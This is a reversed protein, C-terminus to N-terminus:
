FFIRLALEVIRADRASTIIGFNRNGITTNPNNWQPHNVANYFEGRFQMSFREYMKFNRMLSLDWNNIGPGHLPFRPSTGLQYQPTITWADTNFYRYITKDSHPLAPSVGPKLTPRQANSGGGNYSQTVQMPLGIQFETIGAFQWGTIIDKLVPIDNLYKERRGLPVQYVYSAVFRQPVDYGGVGWELGLNYFDQAAAGNSRAPGDVDNMLKSYTYAVQVLLGNMWRHELKAQLSHYISNGDNLLGTVGTYQPYPRLSQRNGPGWDSARLQNLNYGSPLKVGKTAVYDVEALWTEKIQRQLGLQWSQNYASRKRRELAIVSSTPSTLSAPIYPRGASDVNYSYAPVGDQLRYRPTVGNDLSSFGASVGYQSSPGYGGYGITPLLYMGYGGRVVWKPIFNYAFGIRPLFNTFVNPSFHSGSFDIKAFEVEGLNGTTRNKLNPNFSAFQGNAESYPGNYEWRVGLNLTLKPLVKFDDQFYMGACNINMRFTYDNISIGTNTPYGLLLDALGYGTPTVGQLATFTNSFTYNGSLKGPNYFNWMQRRYDGGMKLSHRGTIFNLAESFVYSRDRDGNTYDSGLQIMNQVNVIPFESLSVNKIGLEPAPSSSAITYNHEQVFGARFDNITRPGFVHTYNLVFQTDRFGGATDNNAKNPIRIQAEANPNYRGIRGFIKDNSSFNHDVRGLWQWTQRIQPPHVSYNQTGSYSGNPDPYYKIIQVGSTDFRAAPIANGGFPDRVYKNTAPDLRSTSPDYITVLKGGSFTQSFDGSKEGATPVLSNYLVGNSALTVNFDVFFFTKDRGNYVKPILVPGGITFGPDNQVYKLASKSTQFANRNNLLRNRFYDYIAGHYINTGTRSTMIMIGGGTHGFEATFPTTLVKFEQISDPSPTLTYTQDSPNTTPLGDVMIENTVPRGGGFSFNNINSNTSSTSTVGPVLKALLVPVRGRSNSAVLPVNMLQESGVVHGIEPSVYNLQTATASVDVKETVAGIQMVIDVSMSQNVQLRLGSQVSSKFGAHEVTVTYDGPKLFSIQYDGVDNTTTKSIANTNIETVTVEANPVPLGAPDTVRGRISGTITQAWVPLVVLLGLLFRVAM